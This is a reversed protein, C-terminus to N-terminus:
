IEYGSSLSMGKRGLGYGALGEWLTGGVPILFELLSDVPDM